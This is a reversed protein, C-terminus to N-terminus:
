WITACPFRKAEREKKKREKIKKKLITQNKYHFNPHSGSNRLQHFPSQLWGSPSLTHPPINILRLPLTTSLITSSRTLYMKDLWIREFIYLIWLQLWGLLWSSMRQRCIRGIISFWRKGVGCYTPGNDVEKWWWSIEWRTREFEVM